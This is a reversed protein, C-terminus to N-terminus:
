KGRKLVYICHKKVHHNPASLHLFGFSNILVVLIFTRGYKSKRLSKQCTTHWVSLHVTKTHLAGCSCVVNKLKMHVNSNFVMDVEDKMLTAIM